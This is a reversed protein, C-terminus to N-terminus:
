LVELRTQAWDIFRKRITMTHVGPTGDGLVVHDIQVVPLVWRSSSTIFAEQLRPLDDISVPRRVLPLVWPAVEFVVQQSTGPLVGDLATYLTDRLVAYFNSSTGELMNGEADLLIATHVDDPLGDELAKRDHLWGTDKAAPNHRATNAATIVKVGQEYISDPYHAFPEVSIIIDDPTGRPVTLRFKVDGYGAIDIVERVAARIQEHPLTLEIGERQASDQLRDLHATLKLVAYTNRTNAVTYVGDAPEHAAAEKLSNATYPVDQLGGPKLQRITCPM